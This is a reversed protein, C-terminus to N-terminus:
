LQNYSSDHSNEDAEDAENDFVDSSDATENVRARKPQMYCRHTESNVYKQCVTCCVLGCNHSEPRVLNRKVVKKCKTCKVLSECISKM